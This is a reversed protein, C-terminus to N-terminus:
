REGHMDVSIAPREREGLGSDLRMDIWDNLNAEVPLQLRMSNPPM